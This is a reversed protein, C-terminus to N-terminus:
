ERLELTGIYDFSKKIVPEKMSQRVTYALYLVAFLLLVAGLLKKAPTIYQRIRDWARFLWTKPQALEEPSMTGIRECMETYERYIEMWDTWVSDQVKHLFDKLVPIQKKQLERQFLFALVQYLRGCVNDFHVTDYQCIDKLEYLFRIELSSLVVITEPALCDQMFYDPMKLLMMRELLNRGIALREELSSAENQLKKGLTDGEGCSFVVHFYEESSFCFQLDTFAPNEVAKMLFEMTKAIWDRDKIRIVTCREGAAEEQCLFRDIQSDSSFCKLVVYKKGLTQIIM